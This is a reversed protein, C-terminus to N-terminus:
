LNFDKIDVNLCRSISLYKNERINKENPNYKIFKNGLYEFFKVYTSIHTDGAYVISKISDIHKKDPFKRFMRALTYADMILAIGTVSFATIKGLREIEKGFRSLLLNIDNSSRYKAHIFGDYAIMIGRWLDIIENTRNNNIYQNLIFDVIDKALKEQGENELAELQARVRHMNKGRRNVIMSPTILKLNLEPDNAISLSERMLETADQAFNDSTLYLKFLRVNKPYIKGTMTQGGSFYLDRMLKDTTEIFKNRRRDNKFVMKNFYELSTMVRELSISMEYNTIDNTYNPIREGMLKELESTIKPLDLKKYELRIDVYHFRTTDYKCKLKNLCNYFIYYLKSLYDDVNSLADKQGPIYSNKGTFPVELYFDVWKGEESAQTFIKSLLVSIDWCNESGPPSSLSLNSLNIDQCPSCNNKMSFHADGFFNFSKDKINTIYASIPGSLKDNGTKKIQPQQIHQPQINILTPLSPTTPLQLTSPTTSPTPSLNKLRCKDDIIECKEEVNNSRVDKICRGPSPRPNYFCGFDKEM